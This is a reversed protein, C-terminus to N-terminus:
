ARLRELFAQVRTKLQGAAAAGYERDLVLFPLADAALRHRLSHVEASWIQCFKIRQFVVGRAGVAGVLDRLAAYRRPFEGMMRACPLQHLYARALAALLDDVSATALAAEDVGAGLGRLGWCLLDGAVHAGQSELVRVFRPDDLEGGVLLVRARIGDVAPADAAAAALADVLPLFAEPPLVRAAVGALLVDSGRLCPPDARRVEDLRALGARVLSVRRIADRLGAATLTVGFHSALATALRRLEEVYFPVVDDRFSRPVSVFAHFAPRAKAVVVDDLRRVHDCTNVAVQGALFGLAGDVFLAAVHRVFSCTLHSLYADGSASDVAGAGRLRVPRVGAALLIEPPVYACLYGVVPAGEAALAPPRPAAVAAELAAVAASRAAATV